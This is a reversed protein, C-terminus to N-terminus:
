LSYRVELGLIRGKNLPAFTQGPAFPLIAEQGFVTRNLLNKGFASIQLDPNPLTFSLSADLQRTPNLVGQNSDIAFAKSAHQYSLRAAWDGISTRRTWSLAGSITWPSLSPLRLARDKEDVAGDGSLDFKVNRLRDRLHGANFQLTLEESIDASLEAEIGWINADATNATIQLSGLNPDPRIIDRQLNEYQNFFGALSLRAKGDFMEKKLGLEFANAIEDGYPGPPALRNTQRINYGGSRHGQTWFGYLHTESDPEWQLGIKPTFAEWKHSDNFGHTICIRSSLSCPSTATPSLAEVKVNKWEMSYRAGINLTLDSGIDLDLNSFVALTESTQSGGGTSDVLGGLLKRREVYKLRDAYGFAGL